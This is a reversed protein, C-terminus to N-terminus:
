TPHGAGPFLRTTLGDVPRDATELSADATVAGKIFKLAEDFCAVLQPTVVYDRLTDDPRQIGETFRLVFDGRHVQEPIDILDRVLVPV